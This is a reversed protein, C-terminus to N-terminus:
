CGAWCVVRPMATRPFLRVAAHAFVCFGAQCYAAVDFGWPLEAIRDALQDLPLNLRGGPSM